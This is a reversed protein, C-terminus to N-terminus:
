ENSGGTDLGILRSPNVVSINGEDDVDIGANSFTKGTRNASMFTLRCLDGEFDDRIPVDDVQLWRQRGIKLVRDVGHKKCLRLRKVQKESM